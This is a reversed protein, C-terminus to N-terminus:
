DAVREETLQVEIESTTQGSLFLFRQLYGKPPGKYHNTEKVNWM